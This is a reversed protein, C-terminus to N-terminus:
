LLIIMVVFDFDLIPCDEQVTSGLQSILSLKLNIKVKRHLSKAGLLTYHINGNTSLSNNSTTM